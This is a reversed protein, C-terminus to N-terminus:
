WILNSRAKKVMYCHLSCFVFHLHWEVSIHDIVIGVDPVCLDRLLRAGRNGLIVPDFALEVGFRDVLHDAGVRCAEEGRAVLIFTEERPADVHVQIVADHM